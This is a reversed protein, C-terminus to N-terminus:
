KVATLNGRVIVATASVIARTEPPESAVYASQVEDTEAFVVTEAPVTEIEAPVLLVKAPSELSLRNGPVTRLDDM